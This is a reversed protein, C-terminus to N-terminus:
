QKRIGAISVKAGAKSVSGTIGASGGFFAELTGKGKAGDSLTFSFTAKSSMKGKTIKSISGTLKVSGTDTLGDTSTTWTGSLKGNAAVKIVATVGDADGRYFIGNLPPVLPSYKGVFTKANLASAEQVAVTSTIVGCLAVLCAIKRVISHLM